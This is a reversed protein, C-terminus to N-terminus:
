SRPPSEPAPAGAGSTEAGPQTPEAATEEPRTLDFVRGGNYTFLVAGHRPAIVIRHSLFFDLGLEMEPRDQFRVVRHSLRLRAPAIDEAGITFREFRGIGLDAGGVADEGTAPVPEAPRLGVDRALELSVTSRSVGTNLKAAVRKGNLQADIQVDGRNRVISHNLRVMSYTDTWYALQSVTCDRPDFLRLVRHAFDFETTFAELVSQSLVLTVDGGFQQDGAVYVRLNRVVSKDFGLTDLRVEDIGANARADYVYLDKAERNTLPVIPLGLRVAAARQIYSMAAGTYIMMRVPKGNVTGPILARGDSLEVPLEAVQALTCAARAAEGPVGASLALAIGALRGRRQGRRRGRAERSRSSGPSGLRTLVSPERASRVGPVACRTDAVKAVTTNGSLM